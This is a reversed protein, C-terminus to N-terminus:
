ARADDEPALFSDEFFGDDVADRIEAESDPAGGGLLSGDGDAASAGRASVSARDASADPASAGNRGRLEWVRQGDRDEWILRDTPRLPAGDLTEWHHSTRRARQEAPRYAWLRPRGSRLKMETVKWRSGDGRVLICQM